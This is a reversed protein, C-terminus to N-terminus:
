KINIIWECKFRTERRETEGDGGRNENMSALGRIWEGANKPELFSPDLSPGQVCEDMKM